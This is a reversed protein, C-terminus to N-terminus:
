RLEPAINELARLMPQVAFPLSYIISAFWLGSFSFALNDGTISYFLKGAASNSDMGVLLFYGLVTPPLVLPLTILAEALYQGRFKGRALSYALILGIPLLSLSTILALKMSVELAQWDM